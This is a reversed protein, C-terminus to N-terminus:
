ELVGRKKRKKIVALLIITILLLVISIIIYLKYNKFFNLISDYVLSFLNKEDKKEDNINEDIDHISRYSNVRNVFNDYSVDYEYYKGCLPFNNGDIGDCLPDLSYTNFRPIYVDIDTIKIGCKNSYINFKWTGNNFNKTIKGDTAVLKETNNLYLIYFDNDINTINVEFINYYVGEENEIKGLHKYTIKIDDALEKLSIIEEDTCSANVHFISIFFILLTLIIYKTNIM